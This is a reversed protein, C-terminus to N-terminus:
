NNVISWVIGGIIILVLLLLIRQVLIYHSGAWHAARIMWDNENLNGNEDYIGM